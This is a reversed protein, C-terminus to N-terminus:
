GGETKTAAPGAPATPLSPPPPPCGGMVPPMPRLTGIIARIEGLLSQWGSQIRARVPPERLVLHPVFWSAVGGGALVRLMAGARFAQRALRVAGQPCDRHIVTGDSRRFLRVCLGGEQRRITAVAEDATMASLDYVHKRCMGCFRVADKPGAGDPVRAMEEWDAQCPSAIRISRLVEAASSGTM